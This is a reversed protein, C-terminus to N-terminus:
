PQLVADGDDDLEPVTGQGKEIWGMAELERMIPSRTCDPCVGISDVALLMNYDRDPFPKIHLRMTGLRDSQNAIVEEIKNRVERANGFGKKGAGRHTRNAMVASISVGCSKKRQVQFLNDKVM